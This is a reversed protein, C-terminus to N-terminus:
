DRERPPAAAPAGASSPPPGEPEDAAAAPGPQPKAATVRNAWYALNADLMPLLFSCKPFLRVFSTV